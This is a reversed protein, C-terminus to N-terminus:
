GLLEQEGPGGALGLGLDDAKGEAPRPEVHHLDLAADEALGEEVRRAPARTVFRATWKL